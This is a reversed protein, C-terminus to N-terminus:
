SESERHDENHNHEVPGLMNEFVRATWKRYFLIKGVGAFYGM